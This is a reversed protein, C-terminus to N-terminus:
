VEEVFIEKYAFFCHVRPESSLFTVSKAALFTHRRYLRLWIEASSVAFYMDRDAFHLVRSYHLAIACILIADNSEVDNYVITWFKDIPIKCLINLM